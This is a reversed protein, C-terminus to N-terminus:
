ATYVVQFLGCCPSFFVYRFIFFLYFVHCSGNVRLVSATLLGATRNETTLAKKSTPSLKKRFSQIDICGRTRMHTNRLPFLLVGESRMRKFHFHVQSCMALECVTHPGRTCGVRGRFVWVKLGLFPKAIRKWRRRRRRRQRNPRKEVVKHIFLSFTDAKNRAIGCFYLEYRMM